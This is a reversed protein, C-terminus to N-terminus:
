FLGLSNLYVRRERLRFGEMSYTCFIFDKALDAKHAIVKQRSLVLEPQAILVSKGPELIKGSEVGRSQFSFKGEVDPKLLYQPIVLNVEYKNIPKSGTNKFRVPYIFSWNAVSSDITGNFLEPPGVDLSAPMRNMLKAIMWSIGSSVLYAIDYSENTLCYEM